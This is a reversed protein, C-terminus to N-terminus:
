PVGSPMGLEAPLTSSVAYLQCCAASPNCSVAHLISTTMSTLMSTSMSTPLLTNSQQMKYATKLYAIMYASLAHLASLALYASLRRLRVTTCSFQIIITIGLTLYYLGTSGSPDETNLYNHWLCLSCHCSYYSAAITNEMDILYVPRGSTYSSDLSDTM